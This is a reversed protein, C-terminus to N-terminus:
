QSGGRRKMVDSRCKEVLERILSDHERSRIFAANDTETSEGDSVYFSMYYIDESKGDSGSGTVVLKIGKSSVDNGHITQIRERTGNQDLFYYENDVMGNKLDPQIILIGNDPIRLVRRGSKFEPIIGGAEGHLVTIRGHFGQPILYTKKEMTLYAFGFSGAFLILITLVVCLPLSFCGLVARIPKIKKTDARLFSDLFLLQALCAIIWLYFIPISFANIWPGIILYALYVNGFAILGAILISLLVRLLKNSIIYLSLISRGSVAIGVALPTSWFIFSSTDGSGFWDQFYLVIIASLFCVSLHVLVSLLIVIIPKKM